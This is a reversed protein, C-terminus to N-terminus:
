ADSRRVAWAHIAKRFVALLEPLRAAVRQLAQETFAVPEALLEIAIDPHHGNGWEVSAECLQPESTIHEAGVMLAVSDAEQDAADPFMCELWVHHGQYSTLGGVSSSGTGFKYKPYERAVEREAIRLLPLLATELQTGFSM